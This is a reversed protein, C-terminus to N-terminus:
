KMDVPIDYCYSDEPVCQIYEDFVYHVPVNYVVQYYKLDKYQLQNSNKFIRKNNITRIASGFVIAILSDEFRLFTEDQKDDHIVVRWEREYEYDSIKGFLLKKKLKNDSLLQDLSYNLGQTEELESFHGNDLDYSVDCDFYGPYQQTFKELLKQKDFVLCVGRNRNAYQAWMRPLLHGHFNQVSQNDLDKTFCVFRFNKAVKNDTKRDISPVIDGKKSFKIKTFIRYKEVPDYSRSFRNLLLTNNPLIKGILRDLTTYHFVKENTLDGCLSGNRGQMEDCRYFSVKSDYV